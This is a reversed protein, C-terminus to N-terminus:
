RPAGALAALLVRRAEALRGELTCGAAARHGGGGLAAAVQGVDVRGKSRLSVRVGRRMETLLVGVEVGELARAYNVFSEALEPAAGAQGLMDENLALLAVDGHIELTDLVRSLLRLRAPPWSEEAREAFQWPRCGAAVCDRAVELTEVDTSAYRFWGTDSALSCWLAEAIPVDLAVGLAGLLRAVLVGVAAASPDRVVV